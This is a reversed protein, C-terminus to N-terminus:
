RRRVKLLLHGRAPISLNVSVENGKQQFEAGEVAVSGPPLGIEDPSFALVRSLPETEPNFCNIVSEGDLTHAHVTEGLGFFAGQTFFRKNGLYTTMAAKQAAWVAPDKPTGGVGLHRCTSMYWWLMMANANDKRLDIHLYIPVSYALNAYYLSYARRSVIDDMPDIMYEYGWLEDFAGPKGHLIYTPAYRTTGPGTMPDHQEIVVDPYAAHVQRAIALIAELHERHTEPLAHGHSPDWCEGPFWSGDYMLFYAGKACLTKLREVKTAIYASSACCLEDLRKGGADMRRAEEPYGAVDSWPALPTHLALSLGHKERLERVFDEQKGLRDDAWVNSGFITDWGPDLYLCECGLDRAQAIERDMDARRYLAARNEATDGKWWLPNDYLENWHVPQDYRPPLRHGRSETFLRYSAYAERWGGDLMQYRTAGFAYRAGPELRAAGQPDGLKWRGAGGFRMVKETGDQEVRLLSWEMDDPNYKGVLLVSGGQYWAWGEAGWASSPKRNFRPSRETSFWSEREALDWVDYDCLEGTEPHRRYPVNCLRCGAGATWDRGDHVCKAFGCAFDPLDLADAGTNVLTVTETIADPERDSATFSQEVRLAGAAATFAAVCTGPERATVSPVGVLRPAAIGSWSYGRDAFVRKSKTDRLSRANLVAGTEVTLELRGSTMVLISSAGDWEAFPTGPQRSATGM